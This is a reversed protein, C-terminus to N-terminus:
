RRRRALFAEHLIDAEQQLTPELESLREPLDMSGHIVALVYVNPDKSTCVFFHRKVRYFMLSEFVDPKSKLLSPQEKLLELAQEFQSNTLAAVEAGWKELSYQEIEDLDLLARRSLALSAM